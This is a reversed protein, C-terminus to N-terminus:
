PSDLRPTRFQPGGQADGVPEEGSVRQIQGGDKKSALVSKQAKGTSILMGVVREGTAAPLTVSFAYRAIQSNYQEVAALFARRHRHLRQHADLVQVLSAQGQESARRVQNLATGSAVVAEAQAEILEHIVPLTEDIQRLDNAAAGRENLEKFYTRYAGVFPPDAPLPWEAGPAPSAIEALAQQARVAALRSEAREAKATAQAASLLLQDDRSDAASLAALFRHEDLAYHYAAITHALRWYASVADLRRTGITTQGLLSKLAM